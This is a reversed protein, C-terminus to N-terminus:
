YIEKCNLDSFERIILMGKETKYPGHYYIGAFSDTHLNWALMHLYVSLQGFKKSEVAKTFSIGEMIKKLKGDDYKINKGDSSFPCNMAKLKVLKYFLQM